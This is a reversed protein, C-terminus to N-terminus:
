AFGKLVLFTLRLSSAENLISSFILKSLSACFKYFTLEKYLSNFFISLLIQSLITARTIHKLHKIFHSCKPTDSVALFLCCLLEATAWFSRSNVIVALMYITIHVDM